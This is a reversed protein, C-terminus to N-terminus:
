EMRDSSATTDHSQVAPPAVRCTDLGLRASIAGRNDAVLRYLRHEIRCLWPASEILGIVIRGVRRRGLFRNIAAAGSFIQGDSTVVQVARTCDEPTIGLRSFDEAALSQWPLLSFTVPRDLREAWGVALQCVGCDGDYILYDPRVQGMKEM